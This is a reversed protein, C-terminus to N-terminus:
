HKTYSLKTNLRKSNRQEKTNKFIILLGVAYFHSESSEQKLCFILYSVSLEREGSEREVKKKKRM